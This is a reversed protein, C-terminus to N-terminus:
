GFFMAARSFILWNLPIHTVVYFFTTAPNSGFFLYVPVTLIDYLVTLLLGALFFSEMTFFSALLGILLFGFISVFITPHINGAIIMGLTISLVGVLMGAKAGYMISVLVTMLTCLEFGFFNRTYRQHLLSLAGVIVAAGIFMFSKIFVALLAILAIIGINVYKGMKM